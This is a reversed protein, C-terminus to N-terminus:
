GHADHQSTFALAQVLQRALSAVKNHLQWGRARYFGEINGNSCSDNEEFNEALSVERPRMSVSMPSDFIVTPDNEFQSSERQMESTMNIAPKIRATTLMCGNWNCNKQMPISKDIMPTM